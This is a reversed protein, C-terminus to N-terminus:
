IILNILASGLGNNGGALSAITDSDNKLKKKPPTCLVIEKYPKDESVVRKDTTKMVNMVEADADYDVETIAELHMGLVTNGPYICVAGGSSGRCLDRGEYKVHHTSQAQIRVGSIQCGIQYENAM